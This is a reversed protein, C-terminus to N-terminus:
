RRLAVCWLMLDCTVCAKDLEIDVDIENGKGASTPGETAYSELGFSPFGYLMGPERMECRADRAKAMMRLRIEAMWGDM